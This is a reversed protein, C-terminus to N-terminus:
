KEEGNVETTKIDEPCTFIINESDHFENTNDIVKLGHWGVGNWYEWSLVPKPDPEPPDCLTTDPANWKSNIALTITAGKKSFVENSAIYFTDFQVPVEGFPKFEPQELDIPIDNNFALDPKFANKTEVSLRITNIEPLEVPAAASLRNDLRCRLWRKEIGFIEKAKIEATHEKRLTMTGSRQLRNTTDDDDQGTFKVINVWQNGNWYEWLINLDSGTSAGKSITFFVKTVAPEEQNLLDDHGLYFSHEQKNVGTFIEFPTNGTYETTHQYIKDLTADVSFVQQLLAPSVLLDKETEFILEDGDASEATLQTGKRVLVNELTGEALSFTVPARASQAPRMKIGMMDLFAIFNKEPVRNLRSSIQEFMNLYIQMLAVGTTREVFNNWEPTYFPTLERIRALLQTPSRQDIKPSSEAM